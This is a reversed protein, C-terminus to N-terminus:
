LEGIFVCENKIFEKSVYHYIQKESMQYYILYGAPENDLCNYFFSYVIDPADSDIEVTPPAYILPVAILISGNHMYVLENM